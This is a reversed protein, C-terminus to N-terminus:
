VLTLQYNRVPTQIILRRLDGPSKQTNLGIEIICYNPHDRNASKNGLERTKTCIKQYSYGSCLNCNTNDDSEYEVTTKLERALGLYKDRKECEKLKVTHEALVVFNM